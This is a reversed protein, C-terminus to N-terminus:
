KGKQRTTNERMREGERERETERERERMRKVRRRQRERQDTIGCLCVFLFEISFLNNVTQIFYVRFLYLYM